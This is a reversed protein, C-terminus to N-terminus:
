IIIIIFFNIVFVVFIGHFIHSYMDNGYEHLTHLHKGHIGLDKHATSGSALRICQGVQNYVIRGVFKTTNDIETMSQPARSPSSTVQPSTLPSLPFSPLASSPLPSVLSSPLSPHTKYRCCHTINISYVNQCINM